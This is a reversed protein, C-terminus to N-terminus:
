VALPKKTYEAIAAWLEEARFPKTLCADMGAALCRDIDSQMAHATVAIIPTRRGTEAERRRIAMTAEIGDMEPMQVDMLILDFPQADWAAVAARGDGVVRVQHGRKRLTASALRQNVLNDEALLINLPEVPEGLRSAPAEIMESRRPLDFPIAFSFVSGQGPESHATLTGGMLTVLRQSITLGLGTGGYRRTISGDAQEFPAFIAAMREAPIGIGTDAVTFNLLAPSLPYNEYRFEGSNREDCASNQRTGSRSSERKVSVSVEGHETFKVANGVLNILVQRLRGADGIVADPVDDAVECTLNLEKECARLALPKLLAGLAERLRFKGSHLDMKGAEIKSFDLVDNVIGLLAEASSRISEVYDHQEPTLRTDLALRTMGIIGNLPTRVEHSMNAVFESKARSAAEAAERARQTALEAEKRDHVDTGTGVWRRIRGKLDRVARGQILHWRYAGDAARRLRHEARFEHGTALSEKWAALARERDDSHLADTWGLASNQAAAQGSYDHWDSNAGLPRGSVDASWVMHPMAEAVLRAHEESERLAEEARRRKFFESAQTAISGLVHLLRGDSAQAARSFFSMTGAVDGGEIAFSVAAHLGDAAAADRRVFSPDSAVDAVWAPVGADWAQGALVASVPLTLDSTAADFTSFHAGETEWVACCRLVDSARDLAWFEGRDWGLNSGIAPMLKRIADAQDSSAALVSTAAHQARIRRDANERESMEATLKDNVRQMARARERATAAMHLAVAILGAVLLGALLTVHPVLSRRAAVLDHGPWVRLTWVVGPLHAIQQASRARETAGASAPRKYVEDGDWEISLGYGGAPRQGLVAELLAGIRFVAAMCGNFEGRRYIPVFIVFGRGGQVLDFAQTAVPERLRRAENFATLRGRSDPVRMGIAAENGDLPVIWRVVEAPEVWSIAQYGGFDRVYLAVQQEWQESTPRAQEWRQACRELARVRGRIEAEIDSRIGDSAAVTERTLLADDRAYFALALIGVLTALAVGSLIPTWARTGPRLGRRAVRARIILGFCVAVMGAAAQPAMVTVGFTSWGYAPTMRVLLSFQGILTLGLAVLSFPAAARTRAPQRALRELGFAICLFCIATNIAMRGAWTVHSDSPHQHFLNDIGLDVRAVYEITTGIGLGALGLAAVFTLRRRRAALALLGAGALGFGVATNFQMAPLSSDLRLLIPSATKWGVITTLGIALACLGLAVVVKSSRMLVRGIKRRRPEPVLAM